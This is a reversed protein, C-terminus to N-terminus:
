IRTTKKKSKPPAKREEQPPVPLELRNPWDFRPMADFGNFWDDMSKQRRSDPNQIINDPNPVVLVEKANTEIIKEGAKISAPHIYYNGVERPKLYYTYTVSQSVKGNSMSFSSAMNPGSIVDFEDFAPPRFDTGSANELTFQVQFYNGFLVSDTSVEVTFKANEQGSATLGALFILGCVFMAKM